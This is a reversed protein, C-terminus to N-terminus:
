VIEWDIMLLDEDTFDVVQIADDAEFSITEISVTITTWDSQNFGSATSKIRVSVSTNSTTHKTNIVFFEGEASVTAKSSDLTETTYTNDSNYNLITLSTESLENMTISTSTFLPAPTTPAEGLLVYELSTSDWRYILNTDKAIYITEASGSTPFDGTSNYEQVSDVAVSAWSAVSGDTTLYKGSNGTQDPLSDVESWDGDQRAYQNGDIPAEEVGGFAVLEWAEDGTADDPVIVDPSSETQASTTNYVYHYVDTNTITLCRDGDTLVSVSINDLSGSIGGTLSAAAWIAM